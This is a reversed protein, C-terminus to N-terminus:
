QSKKVFFKPKLKRKIDVPLSDGQIYGNILEALHKDNYRSVKYFAAATGISGICAIVPISNPMAKSEVTFTLQHVSYLAMSGFFAGMLRGYRKKIRFMNRIADITDKKGDSLSPTFSFQNSARQDFKSLKIQAEASTVQRFTAIGEMSGRAVGCELFYVKGPEITIYFSAESVTIAKFTVKGPKCRYSFQKDPGISGIVKNDHFVQYTKTGILQGQRFFVVTALSDQGFTTSPTTFFSIGFFIVLYSIRM